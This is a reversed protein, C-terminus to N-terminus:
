CRSGSRRGRSGRCCCPGRKARSRRSAARGLPGGPGSRTQPPAVRGASWRLNGLRTTSRAQIVARRVLLSTADRTQAEGNAGKPSDGQRLSRRPGERKVSDARRRQYVRPSRLPPPPRCEVRTVEARSPRLREMVINWGRSLVNRAANLDRDITHGIPCRYLRDTLALPPDAKRGCTSCTQTTGRAPVEVYRGSRLTEKYATMDRLVGWGADMIGKALRNGHVFETLDLDEFCVLDFRTALEHSLQHALWMRQRRIKAYCRALRARQRVYRLSGRQRRSLTRHERRLRREARQLFRAPEVTEGNSLTALHKLGLDVGVAAVPETPPPPSPDPIEFQISAYWEDTRRAITM